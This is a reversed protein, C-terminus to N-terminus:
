RLDVVKVNDFTATGNETRLGVRGTPIYYPFPPSPTFTLRLTGDLYCKFNYGVAEVAVTHWGSPNAVATTVLDNWSWGPGPNYHSLFKLKGEARNIELLYVRGEDVSPDAVRVYVGAAGSSSEVNVDAQVFYDMKHVGDYKAWSWDGYFAEVPEDNNPSTGKLVNGHTPDTTLQWDGPLLSWMFPTGDLSRHDFGDELLPAELGAAADRLWANGGHVTVNGFAAKGTAGTGAKVRLGVKGTTFTQLDDSFDVSTEGAYCKYGNYFQVRLKMRDRCEATTTSWSTSLSGNQWLQVSYTATTGNAYPKVGFYYFSGANQANFVIGAEECNWGSLHLLDASVEYYKWKPTGGLTLAWNNAPAQGVYWSGSAQQVAQSVTWTTGSQASWNGTGGFKYDDSFMGPRYNVFTSNITTAPPTTLSVTPSTLQFTCFLRDDHLRILGQSTYYRFQASTPRGAIMFSSSWSTGYDSSELGRIKPFNAGTGSTVFSCVLRKDTLQVVAPNRANEQSAPQYVVPYRHSSDNLPWIGVNASVNSRIDMPVASGPSEQSEFLVRIRGVDPLEVASPMGHYQNPTFAVTYYPASQPPPLSWTFGGDDSVKCAVYGEGTDSVRRTFFCILDGNSKELLFPERVNWAPGGPWQELHVRIPSWAQGPGNYKYVNISTDTTIYSSQRAALLITGSSAGHRLQILHPQSLQTFPYETLTVVSDSGWTEGGDRSRLVPCQASWVRQFACLISRDNLECARPYLTFFTATTAEYGWTPSVAGRHEGEEPYHYGIDVYGWDPWGGRATSLYAATYPSGKDVCPSAGQDLHFRQNIDAPPPNGVDFKPDTEWWDDGYNHDKIYTTSASITTHCDYFICNRLTTGGNIGAGIFSGSTTCNEVVTHGFPNQTSLAAFSIDHFLCNQVKVGGNQCITLSTPGSAVGFFDCSLRCNNVNLPEAHDWADIAVGIDAWSIDCYSIRTGAGAPPVGWQKPGGLYLPSGYWWFPFAEVNVPNGIRDGTAACSSFGIPRAPTGRSVAVRPEGRNIHRRPSITWRYGRWRRVSTPDSSYWVDNRAQSHDFGGMLWIRRGYVVSTFGGVLPYWAASLTASTWRVGDASYWVASTFYDGGIVWMKGDSVVSTGPLGFPASAIALSWTKGDSSYWADNRSGGIVWIKGGFEVSAAGRRPGWPATLTVSTWNVGNSSCWVDSMGMPYDGNKGGIVWIKGGFVIAAHSDRPSWPASLTASTWHIGDSSYWVDNKDHPHNTESGGIVWMKDGFVVSAHGWRASWRAALTASSWHVGDSSCWVDNWRNLTSQWGGIVWMKGAFVVSTHDGRPAWPAGAMALEWDKGLEGHASWSPWVALFLLCRVKSIRRM